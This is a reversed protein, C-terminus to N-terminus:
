QLPDGVLLQDRPLNFAVLVGGLCQQEVVRVLEKAKPTMFREIDTKPYAAKWGVGATAVFGFAAPIHSAGAFLIGLESAPAGGIVGVVHLDPAYSPALQGAFLAAHGGQSHGWLLVKSSADADLHAAARAADLVGRGESGGVLYPHPGPTGLGEYDTAAILYGADLLDQQYPAGGPGRKSPACQDAGGTTGHAWAIVPFGG